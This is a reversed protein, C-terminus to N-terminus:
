SWRCTGGDSIIAIHYLNRSSNELSTRSYVCSLREVPTESDCALLKGFKIHLYDDCASATEGKWPYNCWKDFNLILNFCPLVPARKANHVELFWGRAKCHSKWTNKITAALQKNMSFYWCRVSWTWHKVYMSCKYRILILMALSTSVYKRYWKLVTKSAASESEDLCKSIMSKRNTTRGNLAEVLLNSNCIDSVM